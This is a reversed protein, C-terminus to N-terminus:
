LKARSKSVETSSKLWGVSKLLKRSIRHATALGSRIASNMYSPQVRSIHEGVFLLGAQELIHKGRVPIHDNEISYSGGALPNDAWTAHGALKRHGEGHNRNAIAVSDESVPLVNNGGIYVTQIDTPKATCRDRSWVFGGLQSDIRVNDEHQDCVREATIFAKSNNGYNMEKIARTREDSLGCESFDVNRLATYPVALVLMDTTKEVKEGSVDFTVTYKGQDFKVKTLKHSFKIEPLIESMRTTLASSGEEIKYKGYGAGFLNQNDKDLTHLACDFLASSPISTENRGYESVFLLKLAKRAWDSLADCRNDLYDEINIQKNATSASEASGYRSIDDQMANRLPEMANILDSHEYRIGDILYGFKLAEQGLKYLNKLTLGLEQSLAMISKHETNILEGGREVKKGEIRDSFVRGGVREGGEYVECSIGTKSLSFATTMGALGAGIVMISKDQKEPILPLLAEKLQLPTWKQRSNLRADM